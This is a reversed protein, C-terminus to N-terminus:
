KIDFGPETRRLRILDFNTEKLSWKTALYVAEDVYLTIKQAFLLQQRQRNLEILDIIKTRSNFYIGDKLRSTKIEHLGGSQRVFPVIEDFCIEILQMRKLNVLNKAASEADTILTDRLGIEQLRTLAAVEVHDIWSCNLKVLGNLMALRDFPNRHCINLKLQQYFGRAHLGNLLRCFEGFEFFRNQQVAISLEDLKINCESKLTKFNTWIVGNTTVFQRINSNRELFSVLKPEFDWSYGALTSYGKPAFRVYELTPYKRSLWDYDVDCCRIELRKLKACHEIIKIFNHDFHCRFLSLAELKGFTEKMSDVLAKTFKMETMKMEKLRRLKSQVKLFSQPTRDRESFEINRIFEAFHTVDVWAGNIHVKIRDAIGYCTINPYALRFCHGAVQHLRKCTNGISILDKLPSYDFIDEFDDVNLKFIDSSQKPIPAAVAGVAGVVAVVKKAENEEHLKRRKTDREKRDTNITSM